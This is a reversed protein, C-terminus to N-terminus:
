TIFHTAYLQMQQIRDVQVSNELGVLTTALKQNMGESARSTNPSDILNKSGRLSFMCILLFQTVCPLCWLHYPNIYVYIYIYVDIYICM